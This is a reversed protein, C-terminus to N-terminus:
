RHLKESYKTKPIKKDVWDGDVALSLGPRKTECLQVAAERTLPAPGRMLSDIYEM